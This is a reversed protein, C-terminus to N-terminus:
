LPRQQNVVHFLSVREFDGPTLNRHDVDGTPNVRMQVPLMPYGVLAFAHAPLSCCIFRTAGNAMTNPSSWLRTPLRQRLVNRGLVWAHALDYESERDLIAALSHPDGTTAPSYHKVPKALYLVLARILRTRMRTLLTLAAGFSPLERIIGAVHFRVCRDGLMALLHLLIRGAGFRALTTM